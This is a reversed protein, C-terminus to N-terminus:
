KTLAKSPFDAIYLIFVHCIILQTFTNSKLHNEPGIENLVHGKNEIYWPIYSLTVRPFFVRM